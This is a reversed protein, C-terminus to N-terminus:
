PQNPQNETAENYTPLSFALYKSNTKQLIENCSLHIKLSVM